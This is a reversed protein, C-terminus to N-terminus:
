QMRNYQGLIKTGKAYEVNFQFVDIIAQKLVRGEMESPKFLNIEKETM